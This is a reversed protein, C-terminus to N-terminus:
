RAVEEMEVSITFLSDECMEKAMELNFRLDEWASEPEMPYISPRDLRGCSEMVEGSGQLHDLNPPQVPERSTM